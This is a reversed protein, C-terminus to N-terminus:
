QLHGRWARELAALDTEIVPRGALGTVRMRGTADVQGAHACPLGAFGAEFAAADAPAVAVIFRGLSEGFALADNRGAGNAAPVDKLDLTVGLGGALAMEAAAVALGGESCDHCARVQGAAIARHLARFIDMAHVPPRPVHAGVQGHLGYYASGGLEGATTGVVYLRDGAAKLDMTATHAVDPVIGLASILLTGPIAHKRGDSGTYENNLSDKGSVFPAGYTVAADYCGEACRVLGGLRDPLSPNGWCFNDLLAIQDPDAGAAVCNRMAEDVAAWAMAYPDIAGYAPNIGAAIAVGRRM